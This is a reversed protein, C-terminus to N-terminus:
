GGGKRYGADLGESKILPTGVEVWDVDEETEQAVKIARHLDVFDLALQLVKM